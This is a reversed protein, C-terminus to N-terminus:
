RQHKNSVVQDLYSEPTRSATNHSTPLAITDFQAEGYSSHIAYYHSHQSARVLSAKPWYHDPTDRSDRIGCFMSRLVRTLVYDINKSFLRLSLYKSTITLTM